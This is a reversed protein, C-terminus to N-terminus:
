EDLRPRTAERWVHEGREERDRRLGEVIEEGTPPNKIKAQTRRISELIEDVSRKAAADTLTRVVETNLSDGQSGCAGEPDRGGGRAREPHQADGRREHYCKAIV